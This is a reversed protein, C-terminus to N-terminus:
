FGTVRANIEILRGDREVVLQRVAGPKGHMAGFLAERSAGHTALVGVQVLKDGVQAGTVTPRGRRTAIRGIYYEGHRSVLTLGVYDLDHPDLTSQREWHSMQRPYDITVRFDRLVNGGLWGIVPVANKTSYWDMFDHGHDDPAIALAGV